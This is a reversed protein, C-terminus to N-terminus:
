SSALDLDIDDVSEVGCIEAAEARLSEAHQPLRNGFTEARQLRDKVEAQESESLAEFGAPEDQEAEQEALDAADQGGTEPHQALVDTLDDQDGEEVGQVFPAALSEWNMTETSQKPLGHRKRLAEGLAERVTDAADSGIIEVNEPGGKQNIEILAEAQAETLDM